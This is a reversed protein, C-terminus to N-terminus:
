FRSDLDRLETTAFLVENKKKKTLLQNLQSYHQHTSSKTTKAGVSDIKQRCCIYPIYLAPGYSLKLLFSGCGLRLGQKAELFFSSWHCGVIELLGGFYLQLNNYRNPVILFNLYLM